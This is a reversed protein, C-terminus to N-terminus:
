SPMELVEEEEDQARSMGRRPSIRSMDAPTRGSLALLMLDERTLKPLAQPTQKWQANPGGQWRKRLSNRKWTAYWKRFEAFAAAAVGTVVAGLTLKLLLSAGQEVAQVTTAGVALDARAQAAAPTIQDVSSFTVAAAILLVFVLLYAMFGKDM